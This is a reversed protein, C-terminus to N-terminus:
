PTRLCAPLNQAEEDFGAIYACKGVEITGIDKARPHPRGGILWTIITHADPPGTRVQPTGEDAKRGSTSTVPCRATLALYEINTIVWVALQAGNPWAWHPRMARCSESRCLRLAPRDLHRPISAPFVHCIARTTERMARSIELIAM